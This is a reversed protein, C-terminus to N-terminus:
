NLLLLLEMLLKTVISKRQLKSVFSRWHWHRGPLLDKRGGVRPTVFSSLRASIKIAFDSADENVSNLNQVTHQTLGKKEISTIASQAKRCWEIDATFKEIVCENSFTISLPTPILPLPIEPIRISPTKAIPVKQALDKVLQILLPRNTRKCREEKRVKGPTGKAPAPWPKTSDEQERVQCFAQLM